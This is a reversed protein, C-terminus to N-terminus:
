MNTGSVIRLKQSVLLELFHHMGLLAGLLENGLVEVSAGGLFLSFGLTAHLLGLEL